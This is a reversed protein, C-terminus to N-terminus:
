DWPYKKLAKILMEDAKAVAKLAKALEKDEKSVESLLDELYHISGVGYISNKVKDMDRGLKAWRVIDEEKFGKNLLRDVNLGALNETLGWSEMLPASEEIIKKSIDDM